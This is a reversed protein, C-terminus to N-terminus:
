ECPLSSFGIVLSFDWSEAQGLQSFVKDSLLSVFTQGCSTPATVAIMESILLFLYLHPPPVVALSLATSALLLALVSPQGYLVVVLIMIFALLCYLLSM